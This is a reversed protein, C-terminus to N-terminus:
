FAKFTGLAGGDPLAKNQRASHVEVRGYAEPRRGFRSELSHGRGGLSMRWVGVSGLSWLGRSAGGWQLSVHMWEFRVEAWGYCCHSWCGELFTLSCRDSLYVQEGRFVRSGCYLFLRFFMGEQEFVHWSIKLMCSLMICGWRWFSGPAAGNRLGHKGMSKSYWPYRSVRATDSEEKKFFKLRKWSNALFKIEKSIYDFYM